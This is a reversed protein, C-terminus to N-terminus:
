VLVWLNGKTKTHWGKDATWSKIPLTPTDRNMRWNYYTRAAILTAAWKALGLKNPGYFARAATYTEHLPTPLGM